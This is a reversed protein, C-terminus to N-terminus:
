NETLSLLYSRLFLHKSDEAEPGEWKDCISRATRFKDRIRAEDQPSLAALFVNAASNGTEDDLTILYSGPGPLTIAPGGQTAWNIEASTIFSKDVVRRVELHYRGKSLEPLVSRLSVRADSSLPIAVELMTGAISRSSMPAYANALEPRKHSLVFEVASLISKLSVGEDVYTAPLYVKSNCSSPLCSAVLRQGSFLVIVILGSTSGPEPEIVANAPVSDGVVLHKTTGALRWDGKLQLVDGILDEPQAPLPSSVAFSAFFCSVLFFARTRNPM